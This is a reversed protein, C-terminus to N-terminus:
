RIRVPLVMYKFNDNDEEYIFCPNINGMFKMYIEETEVVKLVDMIYKSNFGIKLDDGKKDTISIHEEANGFESTSNIKLDDDIIDIIMLNNKDERSLLSVREISNKLDSVNIKFSSIFENKLLSKYDLFKGDLLNSIITTNEMIFSIHSESIIIDINCTDDEIIRSIENLVKSPIVVSINDNNNLIETKVSMRFIDLGVFTCENNKIELLCGTFIPKTNDQSVAFSTYKTLRKLTDSKITFKIGDNAFTNTPFEKASNTLINIDSNLCKIELTNKDTTKININANNPFKRIIDGILKSNIVIEGEEIVDCDIHTKIGLELDTATLLLKNNYAQMLIGSLIPLSSRNTVAKQVINISKILDKQNILIKM